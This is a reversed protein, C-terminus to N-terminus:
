VLTFTKRVGGTTFYLNTGDYEITGNEPTTLNVGANLKIPAGGAAAIGAGVELNAGPTTLYTALKAGLKGIGALDGVSGTGSVGWYTTSNIAFEIPGSNLNSLRFSNYSIDMGISAFTSVTGQFFMTAYTDNSSRLCLQDYDGEFVACIYNQGNDKLHLMPVYDTSNKVIRLYEGAVPTFDDGLILQGTRNLEMLLKASSDDALTGDIWRFNQEGYVFPNGPVNGSFFSMNANPTIGTAPALNLWFFAAENKLPDTFGGGSAGMAIGIQTENNQASFIATFAGSGSGNITIFRTAIDAQDVFGTGATDDNVVTILDPRLMTSQLVNQDAQSLYLANGGTNIFRNGTFATWAPDTFASGLKITNGSKSLGEDALVIGGSAQNLSGFSLSGNGNNASM